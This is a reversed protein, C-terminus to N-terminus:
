RQHERTIKGENGEINIFGSVELWVIEHIEDITKIEGQGNTCDIMRIKDPFRQALERYMNTAAIQHDIDAEQIDKGKGIYSREGKAEILEQGKEPPLYLFINMDERPIGYIVYELQELFNLFEAQEEQPLKVTQHAMNSLAYRNSLVIKGELLANSILDKAQWRDGAYTLSALYPSVEKLTGFEGSLFRGVLKGFFSTEYQPFDVKAIQINLEENIRFALRNLQTTKGTGDAGELVIFKGRQRM